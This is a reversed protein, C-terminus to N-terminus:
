QNQVHSKRMSRAAPDTFFEEAETPLSSREEVVAKYLEELAQVRGAASTAEANKGRSALSVVTAKGTEIWSAWWSLFSKSVALERWEVIDSEKLNLFNM